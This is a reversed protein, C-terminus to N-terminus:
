AIGLRHCIEDSFLGATCQKLNGGGGWVGIIVVGQQVHGLLLLGLIGAGLQGRADFIPVAAVYDEDAVGVPPAIRRHHNVGEEFAIVPGALHQYGEAGGAAAPKAAAQVAKGIGGGARGNQIPQVDRAAAGGIRAVPHRLPDRAKAQLVIRGSEMLM